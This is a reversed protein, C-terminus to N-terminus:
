DLLTFTYSAITGGGTDVSRRADLVFGRGHSIRNGRAPRGHDDRLQLVATPRGTDLVTLTMDTPQSENGSDDTVTLRIRHQGVPLPEDGITVTLQGDNTTVPNERLEDISVETM